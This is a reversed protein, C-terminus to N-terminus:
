AERETLRFYSVVWLFPILLCSGYVFANKFVDPITFDTIVVFMPFIANTLHKVNWFTKFVFLQLFFLIFGFGIISFVTKFVVNNKFYLFGVMFLAQSFTYLGLISWFVNKVDVLFVGNTNIVTAEQFLNWNVPVAMKLIFHYIITVLLNGISYAVLTMGFHYFTNLIITATLKETHTAPILLFHLSNTGKLLDKHLRISYILGSVFLVILVFTRNNLVTFIFTIMCWFMIERNINELFYRKLLLGIRRLSITNKM